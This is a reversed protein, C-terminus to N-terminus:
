RRGADVLDREAEAVNGAEETFERVGAKRRKPCDLMTHSARIPTKLAACYYCLRCMPESPADDANPAMDALGMNWRLDVLLQARKDRESGKGPGWAARSATVAARGVTSVQLAELVMLVVEASPFFVGAASREADGRRAGTRWWHASRSLVEM